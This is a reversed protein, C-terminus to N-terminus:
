RWESGAVNAQYEAMAPVAQQKAASVIGPAARGVEKRAAKESVAVLKGDDDVSIRVDNVVEVYQRMNQNAPPPAAYSVGLRGKSDRKLPMIAEPGAEGMMGIGDAFKFLTPRNVVSNTFAGGAAFAKVGANSFANGKASFLSFFGSFLSGLIGGGGGGAGASGVSFLADVLQDEIKGIIKDLVNLAANGFSKWFGEGNQLGSRLDSLFGKTADKAFTMAENAKDTAAKLKDMGGAAKGGASAGEDGVATISTALERLKDSAASAGAQIAGGIQGIYDHSLAAAVAANRAAVGESLGAAYTNEIQGFSVSGIEGIQFGGPLNSLAGNVSQILTNLMGTAANIMKEIASIAANAAGVAAAGIINPFQNWVLKLDEFAAVFSGIVLNAGQKAAGVIDVGFINTLEDRFAVAAAALAVLGVVVLAPLGVISYIAAALSGVATTMGWLASTATAIGGILAPAYVLALGAAAAVAYPAVAQLVDALGNLASAALGAWDVMQLGAAAVATLAISALTVPSLLSRFAQAFVGTASAGSQMAMEMQGAIQTGQQLAIMVPNMGMAATVGIDQFQAALGSMGGGMRKINDNVAISHAKGAAAAKQAALAEAALARAAANSERTVAGMNRAMAAIASPDIRGTANTLGNAANAAVKAANTLRNLDATAKSVQDSRVELGLSAIDM